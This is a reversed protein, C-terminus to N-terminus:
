RRCDFFFASSTGQGSGCIGRSRGTRRQNGKRFFRHVLQETGHCVQPLRVERAKGLMGSLYVRNIRVLIARVHFDKARRFAKKVFASTDTHFGKGVCDASFLVCAKCFFGQEIHSFALLKDMELWERKM